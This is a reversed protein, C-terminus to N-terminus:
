GGGVDWWRWAGEGGSGVLSLCWTAAEHNGHMCVDSAHMWTRRCGDVWTERGIRLLLIRFTGEDKSKKTRENTKGRTLRGAQRGVAVTQCEYNPIEYLAKVVYQAYTGDRM